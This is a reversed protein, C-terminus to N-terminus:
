HRYAQAGCLKLARQGPACASTARGRRLIEEFRAVRDDEHVPLEAQLREAAVVGMRRVRKQVEEFDLIIRPDTDGPLLSRGQELDERRVLVRVGRAKQVREREHRHVVIQPQKTSDALLKSNQPPTRQIVECRCDAIEEERSLLHHILAGTKSLNVSIPSISYDSCLICDPLPLRCISISWTGFIRFGRTDSHVCPWAYM